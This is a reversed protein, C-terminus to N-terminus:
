FLFLLRCRLSFKELVQLPFIQYLPTPCSDRPLPLRENKAWTVTEMQLWSTLLTPLPLRPIIQFALVVAFPRPHPPGLMPVFWGRLTPVCVNNGQVWTGLIPQSLRNHHLSVLSFFSPPWLLPKKLFLYVFLFLNSPFLPFSFQMRELLCGLLRRSTLFSDM